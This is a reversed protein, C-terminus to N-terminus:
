IGTTIFLGVTSAREHESSKSKYAVAVATKGSFEWYAGVGTSAQFYTVPGEEKDLRTVDGGILFFIRFGKGIPRVPFFAFEQNGGKLYDDRSQKYLSISYMASQETSLFPLEHSLGYRVSFVPDDETLYAAGGAVFRPGAIVSGALMLIMLILPLIIRM